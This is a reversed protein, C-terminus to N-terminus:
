QRQDIGDRRYAACTASWQSFRFNNVGIAAVVGVWMALAQTVPADRWHDRPTSSFVATTQAFEAPYYFPSVRPEVIETPKANAEITTAVNV